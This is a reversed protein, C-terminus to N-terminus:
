KVNDGTEDINLQSIVSYLGFLAEHIEIETLNGSNHFIDNRISYLERIKQYTEREIYGFQMLRSLDITFTRRILGKEEDIFLKSSELVYKEILRWKSVFEGYLVNFNNVIEEKLMERTSKDIEIDSLRDFAQVLQPKIEDCLSKVKEFDNKNFTKNHAVNCRLDYLDNWSRILKEKSISINISFYREWNSTPILVKIDELNLENIDKAEKLKKVLNEKHVPYNESFLFNKLQIFDVNHLYTLDKNNTNISSKVDDPTREKIWDVGVKTLMFKTILRRMVNEIDAIIPYALNSYYISIGDYLTQPTKTIIHIVSKVSKLLSVYIDIKDIEDYNFILHFYTRNTDAIQGFTLDYDVTIGKYKIKKNKVEIEPNSQLLHNFSKEDNCKIGENDIFILYELKLMDKEQIESLKFIAVLKNRIDVWNM